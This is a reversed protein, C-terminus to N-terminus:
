LKPSYGSHHNQSITAKRSTQRSHFPELTRQGNVIAMTSFRTTKEDTQDVTEVTQVIGREDKM